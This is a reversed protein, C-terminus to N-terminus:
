QGGKAKLVMTAFDEVERKEWNEDQGKLIKQAYTSWGTEGTESESYRAFFRLLEELDGQNLHVGTTFFTSRRTDFVSKAESVKPIHVAYKKQFQEFPASDVDWFCLMKTGYFEPHDPAYFWFRHAGEPPTLSLYKRTTIPCRAPFIELLKPDKPLYKSTNDQLYHHFVLNKDSEKTLLTNWIRVSDTGPEPPKLGFAGLVTLTDKEFDRFPVLGKQEVPNCAAHYPKNFNASIFADYMVTEECTFQIQKGDAGMEGRFFPITKFANLIPEQTLATLKKWVIDDQYWFFGREEKVGDPTPLYQFIDTKQNLANYFTPIASYFHDLVRQNWLTTKGECIVDGGDSEKDGRFCVTSRDINLKMPLHINLPAEAKTSTPLYSYLNGRKIGLDKPNKPAVMVIPYNKVYAPAEHFEGESDFQNPYRQQYADWSMAVDFRMWYCGLCASKKWGQPSSLEFSLEFETLTCPQSEQGAPLKRTIIFQEELGKIANVVQIREIHNTVLIPCASFANQYNLADSEDLNLGYKAKMAQYIGSLEKGQPFELLLRTTNPPVEVNEVPKLVLKKEQNREQRFAYGGSYVTVANCASFITKFGIGKEGIIRKTRDRKGTEGIMCIAFVDACTMGPEEYIIEINDQNIKLSFEKAGCDDANQIIEYIYRLPDDNVGKVFSELLNAQATNKISVAKYNKVLKIFEAKNSWAENANAIDVLNDNFFRHMDGQNLRKEDLEEQNEPRPSISRNFFEFFKEKWEKEVGYEIEFRQQVFGFSIRLDHWEKYTATMYQTAHDLHQFDM